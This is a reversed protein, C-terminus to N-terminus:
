LALAAEERRHCAQAVAIRKQRLPDGVLARRQARFEDIAPRDPAGGHGIGIRRRRIDNRDVALQVLLHFVQARPKDGGGIALFALEADVLLADVIKKVLAIVGVEHASATLPREVPSEEGIPFLVAANRALREGAGQRGRVDEGAVPLDLARKMVNVVVDDAVGHRRRPQSGADPLGDKRVVHAAVAPGEVGLHALEGRKIVPGEPVPLSSIARAM